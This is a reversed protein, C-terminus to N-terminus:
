KKDSERLVFLRKSCRPLLSDFRPLFMLSENNVQPEDEETLHICDPWFKLFHGIKGALKLEMEDM